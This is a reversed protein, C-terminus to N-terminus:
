AHSYRDSIRHKAIIGLSATVRIYQKGNIRYNQDTSEFDKPVVIQWKKQVM